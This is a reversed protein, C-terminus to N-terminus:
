ELLLLRSLRIHINIEQSHPHLTKKISMSGSTSKPGMLLSSHRLFYLGITLRILCNIQMLNQFNIAMYRRYHNLGTNTSQIKM